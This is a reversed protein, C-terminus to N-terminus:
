WAPVLRCRWASDGRHTRGLAARTRLRGHRGLPHTHWATRAGPEFTVAAGSVRAPEPAQFMPDVRVTGAFYDASGKVSPESGVRKIDM